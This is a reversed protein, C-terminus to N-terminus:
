RTMPKRRSIRCQPGANVSKHFGLADLRCLRESFTLVLEHAEFHLTNELAALEQHSRKRVAAFSM